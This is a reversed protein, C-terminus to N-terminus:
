KLNKVAELAQKMHHTAMSNRYRHSLNGQKDFVFTERGPLLNLVTNKIGFRKRLKGKPDSLLTFPLGYRAAFKAHSKTSDSSIGIVRAGLDTFDEYQDRFDCVERTCGPTFDKPYFFIVLPQRGIWERSKFALGEQDKLMFEPLADGISLGM